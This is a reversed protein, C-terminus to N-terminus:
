TDHKDEETDATIEVYKGDVLEMVIDHDVVEVHEPEYEKFFLM